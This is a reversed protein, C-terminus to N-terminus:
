LRGMRGARYDAVVRELDVRNTMAFPGERVVPERLPTGLLLVFHADSQSEVVLEGGARDLAVAQASDIRVGHARLAGDIALLLATTDMPLPYRFRDGADLRVDFLAVNSPLAVTAAIQTDGDDYGGFAVKVKAGGDQRLTPMRERELHIADPPLHKQAAPLNVFLQLGHAILGTKEPVEDHIVGRGAITWHLDGPRIISDDGRSDRNRFGTEADDFMYTVASFGAHPHAGFTPERMKYHDIMLYPDLTTESGRVGFAEFGHGHHLRQVPLFTDIRAHFM